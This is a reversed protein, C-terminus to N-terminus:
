RDLNSSLNNSRLIEKQNVNNLNDPHPFPKGMQIDNKGNQIATVLKRVNDGYEGCSIEILYSAPNHYSPYELGLTGLFGIL